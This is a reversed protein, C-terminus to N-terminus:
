LDGLIEDLYDCDAESLYEKVKAVEENIENVLGLSLAAFNNVFNLPNKIEHAIGATLVGLSAMKQQEVIRNQMEKLEHLATELEENKSRLQETREEVREELTHSYDELQRYLRANQLSIAAQASLVGLVELHAPTFAAPALNNELYILGALRAQHLIPACLVSQPRQQLIYPDSVFLGENSADDLVVNERTRTVYQVISLPVERYSEIPQSDLVIEEDEISGAAELCLRGERELVLLGRTAGANEMAYRLLQRLLRNLDIEGSIAQAAKVVTALDLVSTKDGGLPDTTRQVDIATRQAITREVAVKALEPFENELAAVKATAGWKGYLYHAQERYGRALSQRNNATFFRAALENALAENQLFGSEQAASIAQDYLTAAETDHGTIRAMEASALLYKHGCNEPSNVAWKRLAKLNKKLQKRYENQQERHQPYLATLTLTSFFLSEVVWAQGLLAEIMSGARRAMDSASEYDGWLYCLRTKTIYYACRGTGNEQWVSALVREEEFEESDLSYRSITQGQLNLCAQRILQAIALQNAEKTWRLFGRYQEITAKQEDLTLGQTARQLLASVVSYGSYVLEGAELGFRYAQWLFGESQAMPHRWHNIYTAFIFYTVCKVASDGTADALRLALRGWEVGSKYNGLGSGMMLGYFAFTSASYISNGYRLTISVSKLVLILFLTQQSALYAAAGVSSLLSLAAEQHADTLLPANELEEPRRGRLHSRVRLLERVMHLQTPNDPLTLGLRRLGQLGVTLAAEYEGRTIYLQIRIREISAREVETRAQRLDEEFLTEALEFQGELYACEARQRTLQFATEYDDQWLTPPSLESSITFYKLAASHASSSRAKRGAEFNLRSVVARENDEQVLELAENFHNAIDFLQEERAEIKTSLLMRGIHLHLRQREDGAVMSLAAQQVRDHLFRYSAAVEQNRGDLVQENLKLLQHADDLPRILGERVAEWLEAAVSQESNGRALALTRSDFTGGVCAVLKLAEQTPKSLKQIKGAMLEVVDDTLGAKQIEDLDWQWAGAAHNFSLLKEDHLFHLLQNLFFPNGGTRQHLLAALPKAADANCHLSDELLQEACSIDLPGIAIEQVHAGSKRIEELALVLAHSASVENDRYAGIILLYQRGADAMLTQLLRLSAPDAWQLDDLFLALPHAKDAFVSIFRQFAMNFRNQAEQPGLTPVPPQAGLILEVEPIVEIIVQGNPGLAEQLQQRFQAM